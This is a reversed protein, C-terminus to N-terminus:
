GVTKGFDKAIRAIDKIDVRDNGDLDADPNWRPHGLYSGFAVSAMAMDVVDVQGDGNLDCVLGSHQMLPYRDQNDPNIVYPEDGIADGDADAGTYDSWFNGGALYGGDWNNVSGASVYVQQDNDSINNGWITNQMSYEIYFGYGNRSVNNQMITHYNSYQGLAIGDSNNVILNRSVTAYNSAGGFGTLGIGYGRNHMVTNGTVNLYNSGGRAVRIAFENDTISN